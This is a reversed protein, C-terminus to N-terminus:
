LDNVLYQMNKTECTADSESDCVSVNSLDIAKLEESSLTKLCSAKQSSKVNNISTEQGNTNMVVNETQEMNFNCNPKDLNATGTMTIDFTIKSGLFESTDTNKAQIQVLNGEIRAQGKEVLDQLEAVPDKTNLRVSRNEIKGDRTDESLTYVETGQVRLVVERSSYVNPKKAITAKDDKSGIEITEGSYQTLTVEGRSQTLGSRYAELNPKSDKGSSGGCSVLVALLSVFTLNKM